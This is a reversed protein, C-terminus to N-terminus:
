ILPVAADAFVDFMERPLQVLCSETVCVVIPHVRVWASLALHTVLLMLLEWENEHYVLVTYTVFPLMLLPCVNEHLVTTQLTGTLLQVHYIVFVLM